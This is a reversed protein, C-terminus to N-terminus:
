TTRKLFLGIQGDEFDRLKGTTDIILVFEKGSDDRGLRKIWPQPVDASARGNKITITPIEDLHPDLRKVLDRLKLTILATSSAAAIVTLLLLYVLTRRTRQRTVEAFVGLDFSVRSFAGLHSM